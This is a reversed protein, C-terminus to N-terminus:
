LEDYRINTIDEHTTRKRQNCTFSTKSAIKHDSSPPMVTCCNSPGNAVNGSVLPLVLERAAHLHTQTNLCTHSMPKRQGTAVHGCAPRIFLQCDCLFAQRLGQRSHLNSHGQLHTRHATNSRRDLRPLFLKKYTRATITPAYSAKQLM